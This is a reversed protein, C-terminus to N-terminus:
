PACMADASVAVERPKQIESRPRTRSCGTKVRRATVVLGLSIIQALEDPVYHWETDRFWSYHGSPRPDEPDVEDREDSM